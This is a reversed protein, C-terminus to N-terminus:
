RSVNLSKRFGSILRTIEEVSSQVHNKTELDIYELLYAVEIQTDIELASNPPISVAARQLQNSLGYVETKPFTSTVQYILRVLAVGKQWVILQRHNKYAM